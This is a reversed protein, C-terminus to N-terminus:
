PNNMVRSKDRERYKEVQLRSYERAAPVFYRDTRSQSYKRNRSTQSATPKHRKNKILYRRKAKTSEKTKKLSSYRM